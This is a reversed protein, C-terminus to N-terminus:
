DLLAQEFSPTHTGVERQRIFARRSSLSYEIPDEVTIVHRRDTLNIEQILAALTSSKGSGTPGSVLVLGHEHAILERLDTHLNLSDITPTSRALLRIALGVGHSSCLVNVRPAVGPRVRCGASFEIMRIAEQDFPNAMALILVEGEKRVPVVVFRAAIDQKVLVTVQDDFPVTTLSLLPLKLGVAVASAIEDEGLIGRAALAQTVSLGEAAALQEVDKALETDIRKGRVLFSLLAKDAEIRQRMPKAAM